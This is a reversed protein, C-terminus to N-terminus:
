SQKGSKHHMEPSLSLSEVRRSEVCKNSYKSYNAANCMWRKDFRGREIREWPVLLFLLCPCTLSWRLIAMTLLAIGRSHMSNSLRLPDSWPVETDACEIWRGPFSFINIIIPRWAPHDNANIVLLSLYFFILTLILFQPTSAHAIRPSVKGSPHWVM